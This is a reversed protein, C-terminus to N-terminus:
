IKEIIQKHLYPVFCINHTPNFGIMSQTHKTVSIAVAETRPVSENPIVKSYRMITSSKLLLTRAKVCFNNWSWRTCKRCWCWGNRWPTRSGKKKEGLSTHWCKRRKKTFNLNQFCWINRLKSIPLYKTLIWVILFYVAIFIILRLCLDCHYSECSINLKLKLWLLISIM